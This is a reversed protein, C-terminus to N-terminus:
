TMHNKQLQTGFRVSQQGNFISVLCKLSFFMNNPHEIIRLWKLLKFLWMEFYWSNSSKTQKHHPISVMAECTTSRM